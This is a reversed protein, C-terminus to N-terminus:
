KFPLFNIPRIILAIIPKTIKHNILRVPNIYKGIFIIVQRKTPIKPTGPTIRKIISTRTPIIYFIFDIVKNKEQEEKLIIKKLKHNM